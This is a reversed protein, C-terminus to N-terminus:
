DAVAGVGYRSQTLDGVDATSESAGTHNYKSITNKNSPGYGGGVYGSFHSGTGSKSESADGLNLGTVANADSAFPFKYTVNIRQPRQGGNQFGHADSSFGAGYSVSLGIDGVDTANGDTAFAYKDIINYRTTGPNDQGGSSYGHTASEQGAVGLRTQTM